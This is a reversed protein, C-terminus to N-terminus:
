WPLVSIEPWNERARRGKAEHTRQNDLARNPTIRFSFIDDLGFPAVLELAEDADFRVGVAHTKSAFYGVSESASTYRPCAQGFKAPYWLHVRAQNRVEVPLTLGEFHQAARRIVADEAEYSLDTGDFYFLDVDKIGYGSPRGTLHNWISNYLAGSVVLWDPLALERVRALTKALLPDAAVIELFAARQEEFPLGSYRLHHM